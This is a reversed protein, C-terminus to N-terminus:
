ARSLAEFLGRIEDELAQEDDPDPLTEALEARLLERYRVRMRHAAVKVAGSSMGLRAAMQAQTGAEGPSTSRDLTTALEAFLAAQGAAEYDARLRELVRELLALAFSRAFARQPDDSRPERAFRAEAAHVDLGELVDLPLARQGAGRKQANEKQWQNALFHDLATYLWARFRGRAPDVKALDRRLLM